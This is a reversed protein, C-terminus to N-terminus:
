SYIQWLELPGFFTNVNWFCRYFFNNINNIHTCKIIKNIVDGAAFM